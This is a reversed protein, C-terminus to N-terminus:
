LKQKGDDNKGTVHVETPELNEVIDAASGTAMNLDGFRAAVEELPVRATEVWLFYVVVLFFCDYSANVMYFKWGLDDM